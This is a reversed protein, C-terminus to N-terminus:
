CDVCVGIGKTVARSRNGLWPPFVAGFGGSPGGAAVVILDDPTQLATFEQNPDRDVVLSRKGVGEWDCRRVRAREHIFERIMRKDWGAGALLDRHQKAIVIVYNGAWISYELMNGRMAAAYTELLEEPEETWENMIQRPSECAFVTVASVPSGPAVGREEAVSLWPSDEEDEAICLTYKGPHGLTSNDFGGPSCELVNILILRLARGITTNARSANALVNRGSNMGIETRVPGNVIVLPASGGTSASCGHLLFSEDCIAEVAACVVPFYEPLCGAMVANIAVKEITLPRARVPEIGIIYEPPYLVWELLEAVREETPPVIPYGDTWGNRQYLDNVEAWDGAPIAQSTLTAM